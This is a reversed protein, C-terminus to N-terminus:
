HRCAFRSLSWSGVQATVRRGHVAAGGSGRGPLAPREPHRGFARHRAAASRALVVLLGTWRRITPGLPRPRPEAPLRRVDEPTPSPAPVCEAAPVAGRPGRGLRVLCGRGARPGASSSCPSPGGDRDGARRAPGVGATPERAGSSARARRSRLRRGPRHRAAGHARGTPASTIGPRSRTTGVSSPACRSTSEPAWREARRHGALAPRWPRRVRRRRLRLGRRREGQRRLRSGPMRSSAGRQSRFGGEFDANASEVVRM